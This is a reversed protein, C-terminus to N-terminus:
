EGGFRLGPPAYLNWFYYAALGFGIIMVVARLITRNIRGTLTGGLYGGILGGVAMPIGYGWHIEGYIVLVVVAV